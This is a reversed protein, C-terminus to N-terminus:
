LKRDPVSLTRLVYKKCSDQVNQLRGFVCSGSNTQGKSARGKGEGNTGEFRLESKDGPERVPWKKVQVM